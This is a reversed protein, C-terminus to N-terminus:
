KRMFSGQTPFLPTPFPFPRKKMPRKKREVLEILLNQIEKQLDVQQILESFLTPPQVSHNLIFRCALLPRIIYFYAKVGISEEFPHVTAMKDAISFYHHFAKMPQFYTALLTRLTEVFVSEKRYVIPSSLQENFAPNCVAFLNLAKRLEWGSFDLLRDESFWEMTDREPTLRLYWEIPHVYVFRIDYDSDPSPFGWARSGSECCYLISM